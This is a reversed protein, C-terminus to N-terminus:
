VAGANSAFSSIDNGYQTKKFNITATVGTKKIKSAEEAIKKDFTSYGVGESDHLTYKTWAKEGPKSSKQTVEEIKVTVVETEGAKDDANKFTYGGADELRIGNAELFKPDMHHLGFLDKVGEKKAARMAAQKINGENVNQLEKFKGDEKGFFVDRSGARGFVRVCRKGHSADCQYEWRYWEGTDDRGTVKEATWNAFSVGLTSGIRNAGAFGIEAKGPDAEKKKNRFLVWDGPQALKLLVLRIRTAAAVMKEINDALFQIDQLGQESSVILGGAEPATEIEPEVVEAAAGAGNNEM